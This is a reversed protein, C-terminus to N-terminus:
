RDLVPLRRVTRACILVCVLMLPAAVAGVTTLGWALPNDTLGPIDPIGVREWISGVFVSLSPGIGYGIVSFGLLNLAVLRGRMRPPGFYQFGLPPLVAWATSTIVLLTVGGLFLYVNSMVASLAFFFLGWIAALVLAVPVGTNARRQEIRKAVIPWFITALITTPTALLGFAYGAHEASYGHVRQLLTPMWIVLGLAFVAMIAGSLYFPLYFTWYTKLYSVLAGVSADDGSAAASVKRVPERVTLAFVLALLIGPLGVAIFAIRWPEMGFAASTAVGLAYAAGCVAFAGTGMFGSVSTYVTTPLARKEKAFCDAILSIATPTLAAEGIAVGARATILLAFSDAFASLITMVSWLLVGAVLLRVRSRSDVWQAMPLGALAYVFAFGAGLLAGLQTDNLQLSRAMPEAVVAVIYRDIFSLAYLAALLVVMFWAGAQGMAHAGRPPVRAATEADTKLHM